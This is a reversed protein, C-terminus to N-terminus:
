PARLVFNWGILLQVLYLILAVVILVRILNKIAPDLPLLTEVLYLILGTIVLLIIIHVLSIVIHEGKAKSREEEKIYLVHPM